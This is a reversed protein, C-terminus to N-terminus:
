VDNCVIGVSEENQDDDSCINEKKMNHEGYLYSCLGWLCLLTSVMKLVGFDDGYFLVGGLINMPLLATTCMGGTLSKTLFVLGATGMFCLQWSFVAFGITLWYGTLGLDFGAKGESRMESYGGDFRMGVVALTVAAMQMVVQMEMVMQYSDVSKYVMEVLPLYLAFLLGAGLISFFGMFYHAQIVGIPRDHDSGLGLLVSSLTLLLVSNLNSFSIRQKVLVASFILNFALQSSLLLSTTSVSLYSIGWSFLFNNFGMMLGISVSVFCLKPTFVSFPKHTKGTKLNFVHPVCIPILLLPFGTSQVWTSVWKSSGGHIFYFRSLLSSSISGLFLALINVVLLGWKKKNEHLLNTKINQQQQSTDM